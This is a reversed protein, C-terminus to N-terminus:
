TTFLHADTYNSCSVISRKGQRAEEVMKTVEAVRNKYLVRKLSCAEDMLDLGKDPFSRNKLYQDAFNVISQVVDDSITMNHHKEYNVKM